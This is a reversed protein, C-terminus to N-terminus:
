FLEHALVSLSYIAATESRLVIPGLTIPQYSHDKAAASELPTFDGEPGIMITVHKPPAPLTSLIKKLSHREQELSAILRLDTAEKKESNADLNDFFSQLSHPQAITPLWNQGCQKCAEIAIFAWREQKHRADADTDCRLVTRETVLPVIRSVGLEVAKQIIFDMSKAKPIGQVLTICCAPPPTQLRAGLALAARRNQFGTITAVAETGEGDFIVLADGVEMRLVKICHHTDSESLVPLSLVWNKAPLYFRPM